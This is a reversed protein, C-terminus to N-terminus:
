YKSTKDTTKTLHININTLAPDNQTNWFDKDNNNYDKVNHKNHTRECCSSIM